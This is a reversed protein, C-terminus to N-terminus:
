LMEPINIQPVTQPAKLLVQPELNDETAPQHGFNLTSLVVM